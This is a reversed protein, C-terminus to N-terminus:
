LNRSMADFPCESYGSWYQEDSSVFEDGREARLQVYRARNLDAAERLSVNCSDKILRIAEIIKGALIRADIDIRQEEILSELVEGVEMM